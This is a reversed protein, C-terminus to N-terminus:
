RSHEDCDTAHFFSHTLTLFQPVHNETTRPGEGLNPRVKELRFYARLTLLYFIALLGVSAIPYKAFM